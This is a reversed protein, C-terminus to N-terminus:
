LRRAVKVLAWKQQVSSLWTNELILYRSIVWNMVGGAVKLDELLSLFRRM